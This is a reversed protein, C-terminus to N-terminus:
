NTSKDNEDLIKRAYKLVLGLDEVLFINIYSILQLFLLGVRSHNSPAQALPM